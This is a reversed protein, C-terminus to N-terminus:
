GIWHHVDKHVARTRPLRTTPTHTARATDHACRAATQPSRACVKYYVRPDESKEFIRIMGSDYGVIFGKPFATISTVAKGNNLSAAVASGSSSPPADTLM